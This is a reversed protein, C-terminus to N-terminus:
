SIKRTKQKLISNYAAIMRESVAKISYMNRTLSKGGQCDVLTKKTDKLVMAFANTWSNIELPLVLGARYSKVDDAINVHESIIVPLGAAMAEAVVMGFNEQYSPLAFISSDRFAALKDSGTLPGTFVVRERLGLESVLHQLGQQYGGEDPGVLALMARPHGLDGFSRILLELGKKPHLRGLFLVIPQDSGIAFRERFRGPPPLAEFERLDLPNPVIVTGKAKFSIKQSINKQEPAATYHILAANEYIYRGLCTFYIKKKIYKQNISWTDLTGRPTIVYPISRRRCWYAGAWVPFTWTEHLHVLDFRKVEQRLRGWLDPSFNYSTPGCIPHYYVTVGEVPVPENIPVAM